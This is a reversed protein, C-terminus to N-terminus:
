VLKINRSAHHIKSYPFPALNGSRYMKNPPLQLFKVFLYCYYVVTFCSIYSWVLLLQRGWFPFLLNLSAYALWALFVNLLKFVVSLQVPFMVCLIHFTNRDSVQLRLPPSWWQNM